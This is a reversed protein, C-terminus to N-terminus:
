IGKVSPIKIVVRMPKKWDTSVLVQGGQTEYLLLSTDSIATSPKPM